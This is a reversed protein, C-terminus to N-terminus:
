ERALLRELEADLTEWKFNATRLRELLRSLARRARRPALDLEDAMKLIALDLLDSAPQTSSAAILQRPSADVFPSASNENQASRPAPEQTAAYGVVAYTKGTLKSLAEQLELGAQANLLHIERILARRHRDSPATENREWRYIARGKLGLRQGLVEQTLGAARRAKLISAGLKLRAPLRLHPPIRRRRMVLVYGFDGTLSNIIPQEIAM